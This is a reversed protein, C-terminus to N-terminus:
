LDGDDDTNGSKLFEQEIVFSARVGKQACNSQKHIQYVKSKM